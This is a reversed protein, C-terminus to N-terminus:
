VFKGREIKVLIKPFQDQFKSVLEPMLTVAYDKTTGIRLVGSSPRRAEDLLSEIQGLRAFIVKSLM